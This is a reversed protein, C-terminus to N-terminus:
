CPAEFRNPFGAAVVAESGACFGAKEKGEPVEEESEVGFGAKEKGVDFEEASVAGFGANENGVGAECGWDDAAAAVVASAGLGNNPVVVPAVGDM